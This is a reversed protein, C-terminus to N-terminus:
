PISFLSRTNATTQTGVKKFTINKVDAIKEAICKVYQPKNRKGRHPKPPAYPCDTEIMLKELPAKRVIEDYEDAFTIVGTFSIFFGLEFLRQAQNWTGSYFHAVGRTPESNRTAPLSNELISLLDNWAHRCHIIVPLNLENALNLEKKFIEKQLKREEPKDTYTYDLGIEGIAVVKKQSALKKYIEHKFEEKTKLNVLHYPHLGVAAYVGKKYNKAIQIAKKSTKKNSGVNVIWIDQALCDAIIEKRDKNFAKFNLHAHSDILM